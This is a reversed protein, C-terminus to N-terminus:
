PDAVFDVDVLDDDVTIVRSPEVFTYRKARVSLIYARGTSVNDFRYYGFSNTLAYLSNGTRDTITMIVHSIGRGSSDMVRGSISAPAATPALITVSGDAWTSEVVEANVDSIQRVVPDSTLALTTPGAPATPSITFTIKLIQLSGSAFTQNVGRAMIIGIRGPTNTNPIFTTGAPVDAGLQLGPDQLKAPDYEISFGFGNEIGQTTAIVSVTVQTGRAAQASTVTVNTAVSPELLAAPHKIRGGWFSTSAGPGGAPVTPDLAAAYRGAQTYDAVSLVGDGLSSRPASDARQFENYDPNLAVNGVVISGVLTLDAVTVSGDGTPRTVLDAEYGQAFRIVGNVWIAPLVDANANVVQRLVPSDAFTVASTQASTPVTAFTMSVLQRTGAPFATGPPLAVIIGVNDTATNTFLTAGEPLGSALTVQPNSLLQGDYDLSFGIANEDGEADLEVVSTVSSGPTTWGGVFRVERTTNPTPTPSPTPTPTPTVVGPTFAVIPGFSIGAANFAISCYYYTTGTTLGTVGQSYPVPSTGAGLEIVAAGAPAKTGFDDDCTGPNIAAYRFWGDSSAGNPNASGNLIASTATVNTAASTTMTPPGGTTTFTLVAGFSIGATNEAIACYYFTTGPVLGTVTASYPVVSTGAGLEIYSVGPPIKTGFEDNCTGPNIAAYRFWGLSHAGNPNASGNLTVSTATVGTAASTTMTPPGGSTIFSLISGFGVSLGGSNAAIACYYYTTGPVLGTLAQSYPVVSTGAGLDIASSGLPAKTGFTDDCTGPNVTSYRFWGFSHDGNPNAAGNLTVSTATVNTAASTTVTPPTPGTTEIGWSPGSDVYPDTFTLRTPASGEVTMVYIERNGDRDSVFAIKSGDPSFTPDEDTAPNATIAHPNFGDSNMIFIEKSGCCDSVYTIKTGDPSFAPSSEQALGTFTLRVRNSGDVNMVYIEFNGDLDSVFAIKTGDPSFTPEADIGGLFDTLRVQNSGDADMIFIDKAGPADRDSTFAIKTGNFNFVPQEDRAPNNTLRLQNTGDANMVYIERDGDQSSEFVIKSANGSFSPNVNSGPNSRPSHQDSGDSNMVFIQALGGQRTSAFAIKGQAATILPALSLCLALLFIRYINRTITQIPKM